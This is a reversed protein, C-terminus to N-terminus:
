KNMCQITVITNRTSNKLDFSKPLFNDEIRLRRTDNNKDDRASVQQQNRSSFQDKESNEQAM